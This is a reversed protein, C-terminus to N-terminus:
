GDDRGTDALVQAADLQRMPGVTPPLLAILSRRDDLYKFWQEDDGDWSQRGSGVYKIAASEIGRLRALEADDSAIAARIRSEPFSRDGLEAFDVDNALLEALVDRCTEPKTM